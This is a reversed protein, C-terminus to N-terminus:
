KVIVFNNRKIIVEHYGERLLSDRIQQAKDFTDIKEPFVEHSGHKEKSFEIFYQGLVIDNPKM